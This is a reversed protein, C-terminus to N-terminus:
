DCRRSLFSARVNQADPDVGNVKRTSDFHDLGGNDFSLPAVHADGADM